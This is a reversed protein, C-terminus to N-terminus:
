VTRNLLYKLSQEVARQVEDDSMGVNLKELDKETVGSVGANTRFYFMFEGDSIRKIKLYFECMYRSIELEIPKKRFKVFDKGFYGVIEYSYMELIDSVRDLFAGEEDRQKKIELKEKLIQSILSV